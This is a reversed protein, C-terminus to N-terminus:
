ATEPVPKSRPRRKTPQFSLQEFGVPKFGDLKAASRTCRRVSTDVLPAVPKTRRAQKKGKVQASAFVVSSSSIEELRAPVVDGAQLEGSVDMDVRVNDNDTFVEESSSGFLARAVPRKAM